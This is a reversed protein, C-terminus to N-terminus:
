IINFLAIGTATAVNLSNAIGFIPIEICADSINILKDSIGSIENGVVIALPKQYNFNRYDISNYTQELCIIQIGKQRLFNVLRITSKYYKWPVYDITNLATKSIQERPPTATIGCLFLCQIRAADATRFIAGVNHMSRINDLILYVENRPKNIISEYGGKLMLDSEITRKSKIM